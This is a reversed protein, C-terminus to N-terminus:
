KKTEAPTAAAAPIPAPQWFYHGTQVRKWRIFIAAAALLVLVIVVTMRRQRAAADKDEYPDELSRKAGAPLVAVDTLATGFRSLAYFEHQENWYLPAEDRMRKWVPYPDADIQADYPDYYVDSQNILTM